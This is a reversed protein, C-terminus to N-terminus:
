FNIPEYRAKKRVNNYVAILHSSETELQHEELFLISQRITEETWYTDIMTKAKNECKPPPRLFTRSFKDMEQMLIGICVLKEAEERTEDNLRKSM